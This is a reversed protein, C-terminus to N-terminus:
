NCEVMPRTLKYFNSRHTTQKSAGRQKVFGLVLSKWGGWDHDLWGLPKWKMACLQAAWFVVSWQAVTLHFRNSPVLLSPHSAKIHLRLSPPPPPHHTITPHPLSLQSLKRKRELGFIKKCFVALQFHRASIGLYLAPYSSQDRHNQCKMYHSSQSELWLCLPTFDINNLWKWLERVSHSIGEWGGVGGVGRETTICVCPDSRHNVPQLEMSIHNLRWLEWRGQQVQHVCNDGWSWGFLPLRVKLPSQLTESSWWPSISYLYSGSSAAARSLELGTWHNTIVSGQTM